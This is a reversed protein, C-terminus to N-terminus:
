LANAEIVAQIKDDLERLRAGSEALENKCDCSAKIKARLRSAQLRTLAEGRAAEIQKMVAKEGGCKDVLVAIGLRELDTPTTIDAFDITPAHIREINRYEKAWLELLATYTADQWLTEATPETKLLRPLRRQLRLEYRLLNKGAYEQPIPERKKAMQAAKDYLCLSVDRGLYELGTPCEIRKARKYAGFAGFYATSPKDTELTAAIDIRTLDAKDMPVGLTDSLAEVALRTDTKNLTAINNGHYWRALSGGGVKLVAGNTSVRLGNLDGTIWLSFDNAAYQHVSVNSLLPPIQEKLNVGKSESARLRFNITDFMAQSCIASRPLLSKRTFPM